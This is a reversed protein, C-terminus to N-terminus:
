LKKYHCSILCSIMWSILLVLIEIYVRSGATQQIKKEGQRTFLFSAVGDPSDLFLINEIVIELFRITWSNSNLKNKQMIFHIFLSKEISFCFVFIGLIFFNKITPSPLITSFVILCLMPKLITSKKCFFSFTM